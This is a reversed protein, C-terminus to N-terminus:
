ACAEGMADEAVVGFLRRAVDLEQALELAYVSRSVADEAVLLVVKDDFTVSVAVVVSGWRELAGDIGRKIIPSEGIAGYRRGPGGKNKRRGGIYGRGKLM